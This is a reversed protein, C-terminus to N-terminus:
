WIAGIGLSYRSERSNLLLNVEFHVPRVNVDLTSIHSFYSRSGTDNPLYVDQLQNGLIYVDSVSHKYLIWWDYAVGTRLEVNTHVIFRSLLSVDLDYRILPATLSPTIIYFIEQKLSLVSVYSGSSDDAKEPEPGFGRNNELTITPTMFASIGFRFFMDPDTLTIRAGTYRKGKMDNNLVYSWARAFTLDHGGKETYKKMHKPTKEKDKDYSPWPTKQVKPFYDLFTTKKGEVSICGVMFILCFAFLKNTM